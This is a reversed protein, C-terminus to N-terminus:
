PLKRLFGALDATVHHVHEGGTRELEWPDVQDHSFDDGAVVQVTAMGREHPVLLNKELDDFMAAQRADIGHKAFFSEYAEPLPKPTFKMARIDFIDEFLDDAKGLRGLVARAHGVDGNTLIFKRGPLARIADVLDEHASVPSYDIAHVTNLFHDPDVEHRQMLGNLTTGYDRYYTKQLARAEDFPLQTVSVMYNSILIDIQAFLNCERPYLTNDLDFVWDTVHSLSRSTTPSLDNM